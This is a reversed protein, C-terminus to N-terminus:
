GSRFIRVGENVDSAIRKLQDHESRLESECEPTSDLAGLLIIKMIQRFLRMFTLSLRQISDIEIDVLELSVLWTQLSDLLSSKQSLLRAADEASNVRSASDLFELTSAAIRTLQTRMNPAIMRPSQIETSQLDSPNPSVVTTGSLNASASREAFKCPAAYLKILFVDLLPLEEHYRHAPVFTGSGDLSPRARYERMIKLGQIVHQAM